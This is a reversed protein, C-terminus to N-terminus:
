DGFGRCARQGCSRDARYVGKSLWIEEVTDVNNRAIQLADQLDHFATQWSTGDGGPKADARVFIVPGIKRNTARVAPKSLLGKARVVQGTHKEGALNEVSGGKVDDLRYLVVSSSDPKVTQPVQFSKTRATKRIHVSHILGRFGDKISDKEIDAGGPAAGVLFSFGPKFPGRVPTTEKQLKGNIFLRFKKGDCSAAVHIKKGKECPEDSVIHHMGFGRVKGDSAIVNHMADFGIRNNNYLTLMMGRDRPPVRNGVLCQNRGLSEPTAEVEITIPYSGTYNFDRILIYDDGSFRLPGGAVQQAPKNAPNLRTSKPHTDRNALVVRLGLNNRREDQPTWRRNSSSHAEADRHDWGGGRNVRKDSTENTVLPNKGGPLKDAYADLCWEYVNGHIDYLGWPNPKFRGVAHAYKEGKADANDRWWAHESLADASNGFSYKTTTGARCVYEWEAETPLRFEWDAPLRGAKRETETLRKCFERAETWTIHSAAHESHPKHDQFATWPTTNMVAEWQSQTIEHVGVWLGNTLEVDVPSENAKPSNTLDGMRFRGRPCWVSTIQQAGTTWTDGPSPNEPLRTTNNATRVDHSDASTADAPRLEWVHLRNESSTIALRNGDPSFNVDLASGKNLEIKAITEYTKLDHIEVMHSQKRCTAALRGDPTVAISFINEIRTEGLQGVKEGSRLNYVDATGDNSWKAVIILESNPVMACIGSGQPLQGPFDHTRRSELDIIKCLLSPAAPGTVVVRKSDSTYAISTTWGPGTKEFAAKTIENGTATEWVQFTWQADLPYCTTFTTGDPSFAVRTINTEDISQCRKLMKSNKLSWLEPRGRNSGVALTDGDPHVAMWYSRAPLSRLEKKTTCDFEHITKDITALITKGDPTFVPNRLSENCDITFLEDPSLQVKSKLTNKAIPVPKTASTKSALTAADGGLRMGAADIRLVPRGGKEITFTQPNHVVADGHKVAFEREGVTVTLEIEGATITHEDGDVTLTLEGGQKKLWEEDVEVAITRDGSKLYVLVGWLTLGFICVGAAAIWLLPRLLGEERLPLLEGHEDHRYDRDKPSVNRYTALSEALQKAFRNGPKLKLFRKLDADLGKYQRTAAADKIVDLLMSSEEALRQARKLLRGVDDSRVAPPVAQLIEVAQDYDHKTIFGRATEAALPQVKAFKGPLARVKPLQKKAWAALGSDERPSSILSELIEIAQDFRGQKVLSQIERRETRGATQPEETEVRHSANELYQRFRTAVTQMDPPRRQPDKAIMSLCLQELEPDIGDRHVSPAPPTDRAIQTIVSTVSGSFPLTGTLLEYLIVGLSYVDSLPGVSDRIGEVQEPSMYAPTGVLTGDKTVRSEDATGLNRALGFDTVIPEGASNILINGPKLDRHVIGNDHAHALAQAVTELWTTIRLAPIERGTIVDDLPPGDVYGMSIFPLGDHEGYDFIPCLNPHSLQAAAKAERSFRDLFEERHVASVKPIKLAVQRELKTDFALFVAGMAGAGLEKDLRYRGFMQGDAQPVRAQAQGTTVTDAAAIHSPTTDVSRPGTAGLLPRMEEEGAVFSRLGDAFQPHAACMADIDIAEGADRRRLYEAILVNNESDM